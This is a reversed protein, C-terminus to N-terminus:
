RKDGEISIDTTAMLSGLDIDTDGHEPLEISSLDIDTLHSDADLSMSDFLADTQPAPSAVEEEPEDGDHRVYVRGENIEKLAMSVPGAANSGDTIETGENIQRARKLALTVLEFKNNVKLLLDDLSPDVLM